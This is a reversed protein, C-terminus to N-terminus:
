DLVKKYIGTNYIQAAIIFWYLYNLNDQVINSALFVFYIITTIVINKNIKRINATNIVIWFIISIQMVFGLLGGELLFTLLGSETVNPMSYQIGTIDSIINKNEVLKGYNGYGIGLIPEKKLEQFANKWIDRRIIFTDLNRLDDNSLSSKNNLIYYNIPSSIQNPISSPFINIIMVVIIIAIGGIKLIKAPKVIRLTLLALLLGVPITYLFSKLQIFFVTAIITLIFIFIDIIKKKKYINVILIPIVFSYFMNYGQKDLLTYHRLNRLNIRSHILNIGQIIIDISLIVSMILIIKYLLSITKDDLYNILVVITISYLILKITESTIGIFLSQIFLFVINLYIIMYIPPYKRIKKKRLIDVVAVFLLLFTALSTAKSLMPINRVFYDNLLSSLVSLIIIYKM